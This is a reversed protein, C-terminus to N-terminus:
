MAEESGTNMAIQESDIPSIEGEWPWPEWARTEITAYDRNTRHKALSYLTYPSDPMNMTKIWKLTPSNWNIWQKVTNLLTWLNGWKNKERLIIDILAETTAWKWTDTYTFMPCTIGENIYRDTKWANWCWWDILISSESVMWLNWIRWVMEETNYCHWRLSFLNYSNNKLENFVRDYSESQKKANEETYIEKLRCLTIRENGNNWKQLVVKEMDPTNTHEVETTYWQRKFKAINPKFYEAWSWALNCNDFVMLANVRKNKLIDLEQDYIDEKMENFVRITPNTEELEKAIDWLIPSQKVKDFHKLFDLLFSDSDLGWWMSSAINMRLKKRINNKLREWDKYTSIYKDLDDIKGRSLMGSLTTNELFNATWDLERNHWDAAIDDIEDFINKWNLRKKIEAYWDNFAWAWWRISFVEWILKGTSKSNLLERFKNPNSHNEFLTAGGFAYNLVYSSESIFEKYSLERDKMDTRIYEEAQNQTQYLESSVQQLFTLLNVEANWEEIQALLNKAKNMIDIWKKEFLSLEEDWYEDDLNWIWEYSRIWIPGDEGSIEQLITMLQNEMSWIIEQLVKKLENIDKIDKLRQALEEETFKKAEQSGPFRAEEWEVGGNRNQLDDEHENRDPDWADPAPISPVNTDPTPISPTDNIEDPRAM